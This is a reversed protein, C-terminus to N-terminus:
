GAERAVAVLGLARATELSIKGSDLGRELQYARIAATTPADFVGTVNGSFYGRAALARQVSAAFDPSTQVACPAEFTMQSRPRVLRPVPARRYIPPRLVTGDPAIEAQVVQVQGMVNEYVAPTVETAWCRGDADAGSPPPAVLPADAPAGTQAVARTVESDPGASCAALACLMAASMATKWIM